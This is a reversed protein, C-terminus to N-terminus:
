AISSTFRLDDTLGGNIGGPIHLCEMTQVAELGSETQRFSWDVADVLFRARTNEPVFQPHQVDVLSGEELILDVDIVIPVRFAALSKAVEKASTRMEGLNECFGNSQTLPLVGAGGSLLRRVNDTITYSGAQATHYETVTEVLPVASEVIFEGAGRIPALNQDDLLAARVASGYSVSTKQRHSTDSQREYTTVSQPGIVYDSGGGGGFPTLFVGYWKENLPGFAVYGESLQAPFTPRPRPMVVDTATRFDTVYALEGTQGNASFARQVAFDTVGEMEKGNLWAVGEDTIMVANPLETVLGELLEFHTIPLRVPLLAYVRTVELALRDDIFTRVLHTTRKKLWQEQFVSRWSGDAYRYVKFTNNHSVSGDELQRKPCARPAAWGWEEIIQELLVGGDYINTLYTSSIDMELPVQPEQDFLALSGDVESQVGVARAPTYRGRVIRPPLKEERRGSPGGYRFIPATMRIQHPTNTSPLTVDGISRIDGPTLTRAVGGGALFPYRVVDLIGGARWRLERGTPSLMAALFEGVTMDGGESIMKFFGGGDNPLDVLGLTIGYTDCVERLVDGRSKGAREDLNYAFPQEALRCSLDQCVFTVAEEEVSFLPDRVVGDFMLRSVVDEGPVALHVHLRVPTARRAFASVWPSYQAGHLTFTLERAGYGERSGRLTIDPGLESLPVVKWTDGAKMELSVGVQAYSAALVDFLPNYAIATIGWAIGVFGPRVATVSFGVAARERQVSTVDWQQLTVTPM